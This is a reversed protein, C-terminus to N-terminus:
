AQVLARQDEEILMQLPKIGSCLLDFEIEAKRAVLHLRRSSQRHPLDSALMARAIADPAAPLFAILDHCEDFADDNVFAETM